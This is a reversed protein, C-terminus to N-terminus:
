IHEIFSPKTKNLNYGVLIQKHAAAKYKLNEKYEM